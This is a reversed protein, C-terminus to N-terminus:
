EPEEGEFGTYPGETVKLVHCHAWSCAWSSIARRPASMKSIM